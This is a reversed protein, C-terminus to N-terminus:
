EKSDANITTVILVWFCLAFGFLPIQLLPPLSYIISVAPIWVTWNAILTPLIRQFYGKPTLLTGLGRCRYGQRRWHYAAVTMPAAFLPNYLFQDVLVKPFVVAFSVESGFVAAQTRYLADVVIGMFGWFPATFLINRLNKRHIKLGQFAVIRLLEPLLSGALVAVGFSFAYGGSEKWGALIDLASQTGSHFYYALVIGLLPIQLLLGPVVNARAATLGVLLPPPTSHADM